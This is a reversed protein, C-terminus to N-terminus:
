GFGPCRVLQATSLGSEFHLKDFFMAAEKNDRLVFGASKFKCIFHSQCPWKAGSPFTQVVGALALTSPYFNVRHFVFHTEM